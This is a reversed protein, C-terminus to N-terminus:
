TAAQGISIECSLGIEGQYHVPRDSRTGGLNGHHGIWLAPESPGPHAQRVLVDVFHVRDGWRAHLRKLPEVLRHGSTM